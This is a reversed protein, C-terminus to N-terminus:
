QSGDDGHTFETGEPFLGSMRQQVRDMAGNLKKAQVKNDNAYLRKAMPAYGDLLRGTRCDRAESGDTLARSMYEIGEMLIPQIDGKHRMSLLTSRGSQNMEIQAAQTLGILSYQPHVCDRDRLEKVEGDDAVIEPLQRQAERLGARYLREDNNFVGLTMDALAGSVGQNDSRNRRMEQRQEHLRGLFARFKRVDKDKWEPGPAGYPHKYYLIIEAANAWIPIAWAAELPIQGPGTKTGKERTLAVFKDAWANMIEISKARYRNDGTKVWRLATFYAAAMDNRFRKESENSTRAVVVVYDMPRPQYDASFRRDKDLSAYYAQRRDSSRADKELRSLVNLRGASNILGPHKFEAALANAALLLAAALTLAAHPIRLNM